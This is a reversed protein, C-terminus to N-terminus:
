FESDTTVRNWEEVGTIKFIVLLWVEADLDSDWLQRIMYKWSFEIAKGRGAIYECERFCRIRIVVNYTVKNNSLIKM